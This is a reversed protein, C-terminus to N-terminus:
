GLSSLVRSIVAVGPLDERLRACVAELRLAYCLAVRQLGSFLRLWRVLKAPNRRPVAASRYFTLHLDSVHPLASEVHPVDDGDDWPTWGCITLTLTTLLPRESLGALYNTSPKSSPLELTVSTLPPLSSHSSLIWRVLRPSGILQETQLLMDASLPAPLEEEGSGETQLNIASLSKHRLLFSRLAPESTVCLTVELGVLHPLTLTTLVASVEASSLRINPTLRLHTVTPAGLVLLSGLPSPLDLLRISVRRGLHEPRFDVAAFFRERSIIPNSKRLTLAGRFHSLLTPAPPRVIYAGLPSVVLIPCSARALILDYVHDEYSYPAISPIYDWPLELEIFRISKIRSCFDVLYQFYRNIYRTPPLRLSISELGTAFRAVRLARFASMSLQPLSKAEVDAQTVGHRGLCSLVALAHIHKSVTALSLLEPDDLHQFVELILEDALSFM